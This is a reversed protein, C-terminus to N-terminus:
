TYMNIPELLPKQFFSNYQQTDAAHSSYLDKSQDCSKPITLTQRVWDIIPNTVCLWPLGLIVNERGCGMVYFLHKQAIGEINTYLTCTYHIAGTKNVTQDMNQVTIPSTVKKTPLQHKRFFQRDIYSIDAGSDVLVSSNVVKLMHLLTILQVPIRMSKNLTSVLVPTCIVLSPSSQTSALRGNLFGQRVM